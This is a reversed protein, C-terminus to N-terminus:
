KSGDEDRRKIKLVRSSPITILNSFTRFTVFSNQIEVIDVFLEKKTDNEDMFVIFDKKDSM